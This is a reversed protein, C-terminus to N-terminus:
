SYDGSPTWNFDSEKVHREMKRFETRAAELVMTMSVSKGQSAALFAANIAINSISGGTLSLRSLFDYDLTDLPVGAPFAKQFIRKREKKGPFPFNVIFRLRRMFANDLASKMNTALIALGNYAEMRQLLYNIEINAYRDHSDKVESRKGFLADAEDFFLVSGGDEAADFLRRLNKETEGIYKSVVSSLDIRYLNLGLDNAIVEAAMTKGTGSDGAFLANIGLGRNMKKRFGWEDYVKGRQRVQGTVQQLLDRAEKPLVIDEWSAMPEIRQALRDVGTGAGALCANWVREHTMGGNNDYRRSVRNVIQRITSVNLDFQGALLPPSQPLVDGLSQKWAEQQEPPRPKEVTVTVTLPGLDTRRQRTSVIFVGKSRLLFRNLPQTVAPAANEPRSEGGLDHADIFLAVPMLISERRWLRALTELEEARTPLLEAPIRNLIFGLSSAVHQAVMQKSFSDLGVLQTIPPSSGNMTAKLQQELSEATVQQSPSLASSQDSGTGSTQSDSQKYVPTEDFPVLLPTVRDDLYNLGKIYNIIREDARLPSTVMAQAGLTSFEVLRWFRLPREPSLVDWAPDDFLAMALAFTPYNRGPDDQARACFAPLRTDLEMATCLFLLNQEFLSLGFRLRLIVLAPPPDNNELAQIEVEKQAIQQDLRDSSKDTAQGTMSRSDQKKLFSGRSKKSDSDKGKPGDNPAHQFSQNSSEATNISQALRQLRLRLWELVISLYQENAAQWRIMQDDNQESM